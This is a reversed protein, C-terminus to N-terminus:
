RPIAAGEEASTGRRYSAWGRFALAAYFLEIDSFGADGLLAEDQQPSLVPLRERLKSINGTAQSVPVGSAIAFGAARSLWTDPAAGDTPFSYHACVFPAGPKLRNKLARLTTLREPAPLFHLTLLCVAADFPGEPATDIYGEHFEVRSVAEGLSTKALDLMAASPDVGVFRWGPQMRSLVELEMGGGAGLVLIRADGPAREALLVGTMRHLDHLGPVLQLTRARYSSVAQRDSFGTM